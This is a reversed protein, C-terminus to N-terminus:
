KNPRTAFHLFHSLKPHNLSNHGRNNTTWQLRIASTIAWWEMLVSVVRPEMEGHALERAVLTALHVVCCTAWRYLLLSRETKRCFARIILHMSRSIISRHCYNTLIIYIFRKQPVATRRCMTCGHRNGGCSRGRHRLACVVHLFSRVDQLKSEVRRM